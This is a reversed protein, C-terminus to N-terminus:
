TRRWGAAVNVFRIDGRTVYVLDTEGWAVNVLDTAERQCCQGLRAGEGLCSQSLRDARRITNVLDPRGAILM